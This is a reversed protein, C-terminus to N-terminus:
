SNLPETGIVPSMKVSWCKLKGSFYGDLVKEM